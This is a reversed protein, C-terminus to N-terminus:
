IEGGKKAWKEFKGVLIANQGIKIVRNMSTKIV